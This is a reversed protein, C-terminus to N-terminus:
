SFYVLCFCVQMIAVVTHNLTKKPFDFRCGKGTGAEGGCSKALCQHLCSVSAVKAIEILPNPDCEPDDFRRMIPHTTLTVDNNVYSKVFADRYKELPLVKDPEHCDVPMEESYFSTTSISDAFLVVYRTALLGMEIIEWAEERKEPKINGCKLEQRVLRGNQIIRGLLATDLVHPLKSLIHWHQVGRTETFEVRGWYWSNDPRNVDSLEATLTKESVGCVDCLFARLLIQAKRCLYVSIHVAYKNMLETFEQTNKVFPHNRPMESSYELKYVLRRVDPWARPDMNITLFLNPDGNDRSIAEIGSREAFWRERTNPIHALIGTLSPLHSDLLGQQDFGESFAKIVSDIPLHATDPHQSVYFGMTMHVTQECLRAFQHAMHVDDEAYTWHLKKDQKVHAFLAQTLL